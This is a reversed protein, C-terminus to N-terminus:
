LLKQLMIEDAFGEATLMWDRKVGVRSYGAKGFLALSPANDAGVNCWLSHLHLVDRAYDEAVRLADAAYGRGRRERDYVLIGIGARLNCPDFDFIDVAGVAAGDFTEIILRLQRTSYIDCRQQEEVFRELSCRSFPTSTDSARWVEVDNEWVYMTDTDCPEVARLRCVSGELSM